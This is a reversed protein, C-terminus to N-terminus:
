GSPFGAWMERRAEDIEEASLRFGLHTLLGYGDSRPARADDKARLADVFKLLERRRESSLTRVADLISQELTM